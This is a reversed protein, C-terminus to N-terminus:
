TFSKLAVLEMFKIGLLWRKHRGVYGCTFPFTLAIVKGRSPLVSYIEQRVYNIREDKSNDCSQNM